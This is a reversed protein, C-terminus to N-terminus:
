VKLELRMTKVEVKKKDNKLCQIDYIGYFKVFYSSKVLNWMLKENRFQLMDKKAISKMYLVM